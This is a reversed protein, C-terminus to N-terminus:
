AQRERWKHTKMDAGAYLVKERKPKPFKKWGRNRATSWKPPGYKEPAPKRKGNGLYFLITTHDKGLIQGTRTTSYGRAVLRKAVEIRAHVVPASRCKGAIKMPDVCHEAAVDRIIQRAQPTM